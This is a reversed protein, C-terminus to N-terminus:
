GPSQPRGCRLTECCTTRRSPLVRTRPRDRERKRPSSPPSSRGTRKPAASARQHPTPPCTSAATPASTTAALSPKKASSITPTVQARPRRSKPKLPQNEDGVLPCLHSGELPLTRGPVMAAAASTAPSDGPTQRGAPGEIHLNNGRSHFRLETQLPVKLAPTQENHSDPGSCRPIQTCYRTEEENRAGPSAQRSGSSSLWTHTARHPLHRTLYRYGPPTPTGRSSRGQWGLSKKSLELFGRSSQSSGSGSAAIDAHVSASDARSSAENAWSCTVEWASSAYCRLSSGPWTTWQHSWGRLRAVSDM